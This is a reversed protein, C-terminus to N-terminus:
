IFGGGRHGVSLKGPRPLGRISRRRLMTTRVRERYLSLRAQYAGNLPLCVCLAFAQVSTVRITPCRIVGKLWKRPRCCRFCTRVRPFLRCCRAGGRSLTSRTSLADHSVEDVALPYASIAKSPVLVVVLISASVSYIDTTFRGGRAVDGESARSCLPGGRLVHLLRKSITWLLVYSALELHLDLESFTVNM